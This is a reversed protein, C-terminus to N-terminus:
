AVESTQFYLYIGYEANYRVLTFNATSLVSALCSPCTGAVSNDVLIADTTDVPLTAYGPQEFIFVPAARYALQPGIPNQTLVSYSSPIEQVFSTLEAAGAVPTPWVGHVPSNPNYSTPVTSEGISLTLAPALPSLAGTALVLGITVAFMTAFVARVRRRRASRGHPLLLNKSGVVAAAFFFPIIFSTWQSWVQVVNGFGPGAIYPSYLADVGLWPVAPLLNRLSLFPLFALPALLFAFYILKGNWNYTIAGWPHAIAGWPNVFGTSGAFTYGGSALTAIQYTPLYVTLQLYVVYAAAAVLCVVLYWRKARDRKWLYDFAPIAALFVVVVAMFENTTLALVVSTLFLWRRDTRYFYLAFLFFPVGVAFDHFQYIDIGWLAPSLLYLGAFALSWSEDHIEHKALWFLPFAGIGLMFSQFAFLTAPQPYLYFLGGVLLDIPRGWVQSTVHGHAVLWAFQLVTGFDFFGIRYDNYKGVEYLTFVLSYVAVGVTLLVEPWTRARVWRRLWTVIGTVQNRLLDGFGESSVPGPSSVPSDTTM